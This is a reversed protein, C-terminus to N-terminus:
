SNLTTIWNKRYVPRESCLCASLAVILWTHILRGPDDLDSFPNRRAAGARYRLYGAFVCLYPSADCRVKFLTSGRGSGCSGIKVEVGIAISREEWDEQTLLYAPSGGRLGRIYIGPIEMPLM